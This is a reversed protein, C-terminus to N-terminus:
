KKAKSKKDTKPKDAATKPKRPGRPKRTVPGSEKALRSLVRKCGDCLDLYHHLIEGEVQILFWPEHKRIADQDAAKAYEGRVAEHNMLGEIDMQEGGYTTKCRDCQKTITAVMGM